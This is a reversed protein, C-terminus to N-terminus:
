PLTHTLYLKLLHGLDVCTVDFRVTISDNRLGSSQAQRFNFLSKSISSLIALVWKNAGGWGVLPGLFHNFTDFPHQHVITYM